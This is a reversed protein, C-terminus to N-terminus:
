SKRSSEAEAKREKWVRTEEHYQELRSEIEELGPDDDLQLARIVESCSIDDCKTALNSATPLPSYCFPIASVSLLSRMQITATSSSDSNIREFILLVSAKRRYPLNHDV